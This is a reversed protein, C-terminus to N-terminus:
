FGPPRRPPNRPPGPAPGSPGPPRGPPRPPRSGPPRGPPSGPPRPPGGQGPRRAPPPGSRRPPPRRAPPTASTPGAGRRRTAADDTGQAARARGRRGRRSRRGRRWVIVALLVFGLAAAAFLIRELNLIQATREFTATTAGEEPTFTVPAQDPLRVVVKMAFSSQVQALLQQDVINVDVGLAQLAAVLQEDDAVGTTVADLDIRGTVGYDTAYIGKELTADLEPLPGDPGGLARVTDGVEDVSDFPRSIVITASGDEAKEWAGVRFGADALDDLRVAEEIAIGGSEAARVAEADAQVIVRVVGSGDDRVTVDVTTDVKCGALVAVLACFLLLLRRSM